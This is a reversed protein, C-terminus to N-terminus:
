KKQMKNKLTKDDVQFTSFYLANSIIKQPSFRNFEQLKAPFRVIPRGKSISDRFAYISDRAETNFAIKYDAKKTLLYALDTVWLYKIEQHAPLFLPQNNTLWPSNQNKGHGIINFISDQFKTNKKVSDKLQHSVENYTNYFVPDDDVIANGVKKSTYVKYYDRTLISFERWNNSVKEYYHIGAASALLAFSPVYINKNSHNIVSVVLTLNPLSNQYNTQVLVLRVEVEKNEQSFSAFASAIILLLTILYKMEENNNVPNPSVQYHMILM